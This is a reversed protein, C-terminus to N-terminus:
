QLGSNRRSAAAQLYVDVGPLAGDVDLGRIIRAACRREAQECIDRLDRGSFADTLRAIATRDRPSLHRTYGELIAERGAADPLAFKVSHDFRSRLAADMDRVRNTAGVLIIKDSSSVGDISRLLVSLLRRSAEHIESDRSIGLAEIEDLFLLAGKEGGVKGTLEFVKALLKEGEGYWRSGVVELPLYVMPVGAREAMM